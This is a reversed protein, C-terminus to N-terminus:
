NAELAQITKNIFYIDDTLERRNIEDIEAIQALEDELQKKLQELEAIESYIELSSKIVNNEYTFPRTTVLLGLLQLNEPIRSDM